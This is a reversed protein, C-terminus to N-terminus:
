RRFIQLLMAGGYLRVKYIGAAKADELAGQILGWSLQHGHM